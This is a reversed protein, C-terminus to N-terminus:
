ATPKVPIFGEDEALKQGEPSLIWSIFVLAAGKPAGKTALILNRSLPYPDVDKLVNEVTAEIGDVKIASSKTPDLNDLYGFSVYGIAKDSKEVAGIVETTSPKIDVNDKVKYTPYAAKMADDFCSRTGSGDQRSIPAIAKSAGGVESWNTIEKSFIKAIQVSTLDTVGTGASVIVAVGDVAIITAKLETAETAKLDRSLMGIDSVGNIANTAGVGSGGGAIELTVGTYKEYNEKYIGMLPQVTTSGSISITVGDSDDGGGVAVYTGAVCVIATVLVALIMKTNNEL